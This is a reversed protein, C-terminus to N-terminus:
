RLEYTLTVESTGAPLLFEVLLEDAPEAPTGISRLLTRAPPLGLRLQSTQFSTESLAEFEGTLARFWLTQAQPTTFRLTRRLLPLEGALDAASTDEIAVDAFEYLFTPVRLGDLAYGRFQYGHNRPYTPDPNVPHEEDMYPRLPWPESDDALGFFAVDRALSVARSAPHFDGAGQGQWQTTVYAGSWIGALSGNNADFAYNLGGPYGVAIGRFGAIRSRGRYTRVEDTVLLESRVPSIGEPDRASRGLGLFYWIAQIQAETDGDLDPHAAERDPWSEPMVIGPRYKQPAILFERFWGPRLRENSNILDLGRFNPSPKGNFDHCSICAGGRIGLLRRGAERFARREEDNGEPRPSYALPADLREFLEPLQGLNDLGFQPMRTHMYARATAGDYLVRGIWERQLKTGADTLQPPIRAEDGLDPESTTFYPNLEARVGGREGRQHCATCRMGTLTADLREADSWERVPETLAARLAAREEEGLHFDPATGPEVALCGRGADLDARPAAQSEFTVGDLPHCAGCGLEAYYQAGLEAIGARLEFATALRPEPGILYSAIARSERANLGMDPMRGATRVHLPHLLFGTLSELDYKAGVHDLRVLDDGPWRERLERAPEDAYRPEDHPPHCAVCGVGHYLDRGRELLIAEGPVRTFPSSSRSVLYHTLAEGIETREADSRGALLDPMRTGPQEAHPDALFRRLYEPAVRGGVDGLDPAANESLPGAFDQAHCAGCRLEDVLQEGMQREALLAEQSSAPPASASAALIGACAWAIVSPSLRRMKAVWTVVLM